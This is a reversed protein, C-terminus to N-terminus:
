VHTVKDPLQANDYQSETGDAGAYIQEVVPYVYECAHAALYVLFQSSLKNITTFNMMMVDSDNRM